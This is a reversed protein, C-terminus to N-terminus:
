FFHELQLTYTDSTYTYVSYTSDAQAHQLEGVLYWNRHLRYRAGLSELTRKDIRTKSVLTTGQLVVDPADYHSQQYSAHVFLRTHPVVLWNAHLYIENRTPSASYFQSGVALDARRNLEYEYGLRFNMRQTNRRVEIGIQQQDGTLYAYPANGTVHTYRYKLRAKWDAALPHWLDFGLSNFQEFSTGHLYSFNTYGSVEASWDGLPRRYALGLRLLTQNYFSVSQYNVQYVTGILRLGHDPTGSLQGIGGALFQTFDSGKGAASILSSRSLLSVNSNYGGGLNVFGIWRPVQGAASPTLRTLQERALAGVKGVKDLQTVLSFERIAQPKQEQKLAVLGLNYHALPALDTEKALVEFERVAETYRGLKFYTVGLDYRLNSSDIGSSRAHLFDVLATEYNGARFAAVGKVFADKGESADAVGSSLILCIAVMIPALKLAPRM